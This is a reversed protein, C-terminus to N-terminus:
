KDSAKTIDHFMEDWETETAWVDDKTIVAHGDANYMTNETAIRYAEERHEKLYQDLISM